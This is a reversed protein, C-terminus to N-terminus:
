PVKRNYGKKQTKGMCTSITVTPKKKDGNEGGRRHNELVCKRTRRDRRKGIFRGRRPKRMLRVAPLILNRERTKEKGGKVDAVGRGGGKRGKRKTTQGRRPCKGPRTRSVTDATRGKGKHRLSRGKLHLGRGESGEGGRMLCVPTKTGPNSARCKIKGDGGREGKEGAEPSSTRATTHEPFEDRKGGGTGEGQTKGV